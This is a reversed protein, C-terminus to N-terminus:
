RYGMYQNLPQLLLYSVHSQSILERSPISKGGVIVRATGMKDKEGCGYKGWDEQLAFLIHLNRDDVFIREYDPRVPEGDKYWSFSLPM